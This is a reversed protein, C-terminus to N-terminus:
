VAQVAPRSLVADLLREPGFRVPDDAPLGTEAAAVAIARRADGEDLFRTNLAICAVRAPRVPLSLREHLEILEPLSPLPHGPYGEVETSGALHCLVYVHPVSGHILGLTVGSYAPHVISGQGEVWLLERGGREYGEVVLQEAAGAIFDSVVADVAIGWGAIAIGTQGTPVFVSAVGRERAARDLELSVTMKGIACDSGVTLAITAPVQLNAGTPVNLGAPPRRLDRLQVGHRRALEALEPDDAVFEHLGNELDLGKAIAAKLLERWEPPFRGGQTAVGVLATTPNFCLADNVTAVVPVGDYTEGAHTSDLIAVVPERGYKLVGRATKGYHPDHSRGEALILYRKPTTSV